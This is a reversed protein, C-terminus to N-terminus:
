LKIIYVKKKTLVDAENIESFSGDELKIVVPKLDRYGNFEVVPKDKFKIELKKVKENIEEIQDNLRKLELLNRERQLAFEAESQDANNIIIPEPSDCEDDDSSYTM